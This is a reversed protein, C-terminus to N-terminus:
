NSQCLVACLTLSRHFGVGYPITRELTHDLGTTTSRLDSLVDRRKGMLEIPIDTPMTQSILQADSECGARSNCFILAGYGACATELALAVVANM